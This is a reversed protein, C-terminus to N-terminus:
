PLALACLCRVSVLSCTRVAQVAVRSRSRVYRITNHHVNACNVFTRCIDGRLTPVKFLM